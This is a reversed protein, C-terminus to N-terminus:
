EMIALIDDERLILLDSGDVKIETGSWASFLVNDGEQVQCAIRKGDGVIRGDGVSLVRGRQPKEQASDPLVIGGATRAEAGLRKVVVKDGLPVVKMLLGSPPAFRYSNQNRRYCFSPPRNDWAPLKTALTAGEAFQWLDSSCM